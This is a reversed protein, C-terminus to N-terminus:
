VPGADGPVPGDGPVAVAHHLRRVVGGRCRYGIADRNVLETAPESVGTGGGPAGVTEPLGPQHAAPSRPTDVGRHPSRPTSVGREGAALIAVSSRRWGGGRRGGCRGGHAQCWQRNGEVAHEADIVRLPDNAEQKALRTTTAKNSSNAPHGCEKGSREVEPFAM